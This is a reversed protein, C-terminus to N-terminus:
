INVLNIKKDEANVPPPFDMAIRALISKLLIQAIKQFIRLYTGSKIM